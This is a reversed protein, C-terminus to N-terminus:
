SKDKSKLFLPLIVPLLQQVLSALGAFFAQWDRAELPQPDQLRTAAANLHGATQLKLETTDSM